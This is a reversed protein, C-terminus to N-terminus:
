VVEENYADFSVKELRGDGEEEISVELKAGYEVPVKVKGRVIPRVWPQSLSMIRESVLHVRNQYMYKQQEYVRAYPEPEPLRGSVWIRAYM